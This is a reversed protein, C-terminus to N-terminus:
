GPAAAALMERLQEEPLGLPLVLDVHRSGGRALPPHRGRGRRLHGHPHRGQGAAGGGRAAESGRRERQGRAARRGGARIWLPRAVNASVVSGHAHSLRAALRGRDDPGDGRERRYRAPHQPLGRDQGLRPEGGRGRRAPRTRRRDALAGLPLATLPGRARRGPAGVRTRARRARDPGAPGTPGRASAAQRSGPRAAAAGRRAAGARRGAHLADPRAAGAVVTRAPGRRASPQQAGLGLAFRGGSARQLSAAAMAIAAPTRSWVPLVTTALGIRSTVGAIQALLVVADHTWGEATGFRAYGLQEAAVALRVTADGDTQFPTVGAGVGARWSGTTV